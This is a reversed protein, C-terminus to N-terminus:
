PDTRNLVVVRNASVRSISNPYALMPGDGRSTGSIVTRDGNELDVALLQGPAPLTQLVFAIGGTEDLALAIGAQIPAGSGTSDNSVASRNGSKLDIRLLATPRVIFLIDSAADLAAGRVDSPTPGSGEDDDAVISRIGTGTEISLLEGPDNDWVLLSNDASVYTLTAPADLMPGSGVLLGSVATREGNSLDVLVVQPGNLGTRLLFLSGPAGAALASVATLRPGSGLDAGSVLDRTGSTLEVAYLAEDDRDWVIMRDNGSDAAGTGPDDFPAGVVRREGDALDVEVVVDGAPGDPTNDVPLPSPNDGGGNIEDDIVDLLADAALGCGPVFGVCVSLLLVALRPFRFSTESSAMNVTYPSM